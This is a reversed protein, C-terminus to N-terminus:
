ATPKRVQYLLMVFAHFTISLHFVLTAVYATERAMTSGTWAFFIQTCAILVGAYGTSRSFLPTDRPFRLVFTSVDILHAIGYVYLGYKWVDASELSVALVSPLISFLLTVFAVQILMRLNHRDLEDWERVPRGNLAVVIASFGAIALAVEAITLQLDTSQM